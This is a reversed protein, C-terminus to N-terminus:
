FNFYWANGDLMIRGNYIENHIRYDGKTVSHRTAKYQKDMDTSRIAIYHEDKYFVIYTSGSRLLDNRFPRIEALESWGENILREENTLVKPENNTSANNNIKECSMTILLVIFLSFLKTKM